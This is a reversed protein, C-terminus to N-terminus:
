AYETEKITKKICMDIDNNERAIRKKAELRAPPM